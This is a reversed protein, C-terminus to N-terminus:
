GCVSSRNQAAKEDSSGNLVVRSLQSTSPAPKTVTSEVPRVLVEPIQAAPLTTSGRACTILAAPAPDAAAVAM